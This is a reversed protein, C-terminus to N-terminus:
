RQNNNENKIIKSGTKKKITHETLSFSGM